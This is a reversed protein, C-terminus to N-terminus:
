RFHQILRQFRGPPPSEVIPEGELRALILTANDARRGGREVATAVWQAAAQDLCDATAAQALEDDTLTRWVGDSCLAFGDGPQLQTHGIETPPTKDGGLTALLSSQGHHHLVEDPQIAGVNVMAQSVSHDRTRAQLRRQRFHYLRSDGVHLWHAEHIDLLLFVGTSHPTLGHLRGVRRVEAHAAAGITALIHFRSNAAQEVFCQEAATVVATSALAGGRHGGLGDAVVALHIGREAMLFIGLRDQQEERGGVVSASGLMVKRSSQNTINRM